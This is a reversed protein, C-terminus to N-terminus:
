ALALAIFCLNSIESSSIVRIEVQLLSAERGIITAHGLRFSGFARKQDCEQQTEDRSRDEVIHERCAKDPPVIIQMDIFIGAQM